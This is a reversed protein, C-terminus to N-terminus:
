GAGQSAFRRLTDVGHGAVIPTLPATNRRRHLGRLDQMPTLLPLLM